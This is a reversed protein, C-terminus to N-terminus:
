ELGALAFTRRIMPSRRAGAAIDEEGDACGCRRKKAIGRGYLSAPANPRLALAADYAAISEDYRGLQLLVFGRSDLFAPDKPAVALAKDCAALAAALEVRAVALEWCHNNYVDSDPNDALAAAFDRRAAAADGLRMLAIGRETWLWRKERIGGASKLLTAYADRAAAHNGADALAAARMMAAGVEGPELALAADLDAIRGSVDAPDRFAARQSYNSASAKDAIVLDMARVAEPYMGLLSYNRAAWWQARINAPNAAIM